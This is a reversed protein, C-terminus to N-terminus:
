RPMRGRGTWTKGTLHDGGEKWHAVAMTLRFSPCWRTLEVLRRSPRHNPFHRCLSTRDPCRCVPQCLSTTLSLRVQASDAVPELCILAKTSFDDSCKIRPNSSLRQRRCGAAWTRRPAHAKASCHRPPRHTRALRCRTPDRLTAPNSRPHRDAARCWPVPHARARWSYHATLQGARRPEAV